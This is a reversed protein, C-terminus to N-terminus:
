FIHHIRCNTYISFQIPFDGITFFFITYIVTEVIGGNSRKRFLPFSSYRNRIVESFPTLIAKFDAFPVLKRCMQPLFVKNWILDTIEGYLERYVCATAFVVYKSSPSVTSREIRKAEIM